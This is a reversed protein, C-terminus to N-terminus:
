ILIAPGRLDRGGRREARDIKALLTFGIFRLLFRLLRRRGELRAHDYHGAPILQRELGDVTM